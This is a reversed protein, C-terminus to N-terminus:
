WQGELMVESMTVDKAFSIFSSVLRGTPTAQASPPDSSISSASAPILMDGNACPKLICTGKGSELSWFPYPEENSIRKETRLEANGQTKKRAFKKSRHFVRTTWIFKSPSFNLKGRPFVIKAPFEVNKKTATSTFVRLVLATKPHATCM